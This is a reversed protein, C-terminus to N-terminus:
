KKKGKNYTIVGTVIGTIFAILGVILFLGITLGLPIWTPALVWLWSWEIVNLLKLVIFTIQLLVTFTGGCNIKIEKM